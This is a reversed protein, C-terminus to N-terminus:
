GEFLSHRGCHRGYYGCLLPVMLESIFWLTSRIKRGLVTVIERLNICRDSTLALQVNYRASPYSDARAHLSAALLTLDNRPVDFSRRSIHVNSRMHIDTTDSACRTAGSTYRRLQAGAETYLQPHINLLQCHLQLYVQIGRPSGAGSSLLSTNRVSGGRSGEGLESRVWRNAARGEAFSYSYESDDLRSLVTNVVRM